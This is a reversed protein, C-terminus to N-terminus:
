GSARTTVDQIRLARAASFLSLCVAVSWRRGRKGCCRARKQLHLLCLSADGKLLALM